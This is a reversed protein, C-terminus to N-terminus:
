PNAVMMLMISPTVTDADPCDPGEEVSYTRQAAVVWVDYDGVTDRRNDYIREAPQGDVAVDFALRETQSGCPMQLFSGGMPPVPEELGCVGEVIEMQLPAYWPATMSSYEDGGWRFVYGLLLDGGPESLAIYQEVDSDITTHNLIRARVVQGVSIPMSIEENFTIIELAVLMPGQEVACSLQLRQGDAIASLQVVECPADLEFELFEDDDGDLLVTATIDLPQPDCVSEEGPGTTEGDGPMGGDLTGGSTTGQDTEGGDASGPGASGTRTSTASLGPDSGGGSGEASDGGGGVTQPIVCGALALSCASSAFFLSIPRLDLRQM